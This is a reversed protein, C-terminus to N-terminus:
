CGPGDDRDEASSRSGMGETMLPGSGGDGAAGAVEEASGDDVGVLEFGGEGVDGRVEDSGLPGDALGDGAGEGLADAGAGSGGDADGDGAYGAGVGAGVCGLGDAEDVDAEGVIEAGLDLLKLEGAVAVADAPPGALM